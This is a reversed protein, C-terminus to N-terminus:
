READPKSGAAAGADTPMKRMRCGPCRRREVAAETERTGGHGIAARLRDPEMRLEYIQPLPHAPGEGAPRLRAAAGAPSGDTTSGGPIQGTGSGAPSTASPRTVAEMPVDSAAAAPVLSHGTRQKGTEKTGAAAPAIAAFM